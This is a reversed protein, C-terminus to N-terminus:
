DLMLSGFVAKCPFVRNIDGDPPHFAAKLVILVLQPSVPPATHSIIRENVRSDSEGKSQNCEWDMGSQSSVACPFTICHVIGTLRDRKILLCSSNVDSIVVKIKGAKVRQFSQLTFLELAILTQRDSRVENWFSSNGGQEATTALNEGSKWVWRCVQEWDSLRNRLLCLQM